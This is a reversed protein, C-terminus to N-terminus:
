RRLEYFLRDLTVGSTQVAMGVVGLGFTSFGKDTPSDFSTLNIFVGEFRESAGNAYVKTATLLAGEVKANRLAFRRRVAADMGVPEYGTADVNGRSDVRMQLSFGLGQVEYAGSYDRPDAKVVAESRVEKYKERRVGNEEKVAHKSKNFSAVIVRTRPQAASGSGPTEQSSATRAGAVAFALAAIVTAAFMKKM